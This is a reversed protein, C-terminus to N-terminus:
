REQRGVGARVGSRRDEVQVLILVVEGDLRLQGPQLLLVDFEREVVTDQGQGAFAAAFLCVVFSAKQAVLPKKPAKLTRDVQRHLNIARPDDGGIFVPNQSDGQWLRLGGLRALDLDLRM